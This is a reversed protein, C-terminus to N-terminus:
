DSKTEETTVITLPKLRKAMRNAQVVGFGGPPIHEWVRDYLNQVPICYPDTAASSLDRNMAELAKIAPGSSIGMHQEYLGKRAKTAESQKTM